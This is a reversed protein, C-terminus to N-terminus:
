HPSLDPLSALLPFILDAPGWLYPIGQFAISTLAPSGPALIYSWGSIQPNEYVPSSDSIATGNPFIAGGPAYNWYLNNEISYSYGMPDATDEYYAYGHDASNASTNPGTFNSLVINSSVVNGMMGVDIPETRAYAFIAVSVTGSDGLDVINNTILDHNGNTVFFASVANVGFSSSSGTGSQPARVVNDYVAVRSALDDMYVGHVGWTAPSGQEAIYNNNITVYDTNNGNHMNVYIAGGDSMRTVARLVVNNSIVTGRISQGPYYAYAAIGQSGVDHVYNFAITSNPMSLTIGGSQWSTATNYGVECYMVSNANGLTGGLPGGLIGYDVFNQIVFGEITVNSTGLLIFIGGAVSRGGDLVASDVGDLPYYSWTEGDDAPTLTVGSTLPYFGARLYTYRVGTARMASQARALTAFPATLSGDNSDDGNPSVFFAGTQAYGPSWAIALAAAVLLKWIRHM